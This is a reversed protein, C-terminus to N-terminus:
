PDVVKAWTGSELQMVVSTTYGMPPTTYLAPDYIIQPTGKLTVGAALLPAGESIVTGRVLPSGDMTFTGKVHVLGQVEAPYVDATTSNSDNKFPAGAPNFNVGLSPESLGGSASFKLVLNGDVILTPYDTRSPAIFVPADITVTRGPCVIVLTGSIRSNRITVDQNTTLIYLGDANTAGYPNVGPGIVVRDIMGGSVSIPTGLGTYMAQVGSSPMQTLISTLITVGGTVTGPFLSLLCQVSGTLTGSSSYTGASSLKAGQVTVSSGSTVQVEGLAHLGLSLVNLPTGVAKMRAQVIQTAGGRTATARLLLPDYARNRFNGDIPDIGEVTCLAGGLALGAKWEGHPRTSRWNGDGAVWQAALEVGSEAAHRAQAADVVAAVGARQSRVQAVAAMGIVAVCVSVGLVAIYVGGRRAVPRYTRPNAQEDCGGPMCPLDAGGRRRKLRYGAARAPVASLGRM